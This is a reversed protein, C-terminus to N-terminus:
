CFRHLYTTGIREKGRLRPKIKTYRKHLSGEGFDKLEEGLKQKRCSEFSQTTKGGETNERSNLLITGLKRETM